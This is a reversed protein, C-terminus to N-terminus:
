EGIRGVLSNATPPPPVEDVVTKSLGPIPDVGGMEQLHISVLRVKMCGNLESKLIFVLTQQVTGVIRKSVPLSVCLICLIFILQGM